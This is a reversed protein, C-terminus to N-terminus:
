NDLILEHSQLSPNLFFAQLSLFHNMGAFQLCTDFRSITM